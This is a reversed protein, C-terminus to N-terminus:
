RHGGLITVLATAAPLAPKAPSSGKVSCNESLGHRLYRRRVLATALRTVGDWSARSTLGRM